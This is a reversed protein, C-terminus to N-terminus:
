VPFIMYKTCFSSVAALFFFFLRGANPRQDNRMSDRGVGTIQSKQETDIDQLLLPLISTICEKTWTWCHNTFLWWHWVKLSVIKVFFKLSVPSWTWDLDINTLASLSIYLLVLVPRWQLNFFLPRQKITRNYFIGCCLYLIFKCHFLGAPWVVATVLRCDAASCFYRRSSSSEVFLWCESTFARKM